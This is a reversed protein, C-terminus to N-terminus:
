KDNGSIIQPRKFIGVKEVSIYAWYISDHEKGDLSTLTHYVTSLKFIDNHLLIM